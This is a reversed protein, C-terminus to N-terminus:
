WVGVRHALSFHAPNVAGGSAFKQTESLFHPFRRHFRFYKKEDAIKEIM